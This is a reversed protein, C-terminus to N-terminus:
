SPDRGGLARLLRAIAAFLQRKLDAPEAVPAPREPDPVGLFDFFLALSDELRRDVLVLTGAIKQRAERPAERDTLGFVEQLLEILPHFALLRGHAVGRGARIAIGRDRCREAFEECLRSKGTGAEAVVGVVQAHGEHVHTLATELLAMEDARGVFRSLGRARSVDLRTRMRGAGELAFVGVPRSVGKVDFPGLSELEFFGSVLDATHESLYAKGPDALAQLRAAIGIVQGQATYDMRLDDGITGVVVEGSNIGMRVAFPLGRTRKLEQAFRRLEELLHLAAYCARHAHDEHSIPAGFLAMVGDGTYQNITGEFRHVDETLIEFFRDLISHLEEPDVQEALAMSGKVDAFLVTVQKREGELASRSTLIREALHKPTYTRPDRARSSPDLTTKQPASEPGRKASPAPTAGAVPVGCADCFRAGGRLENGCAACRAELREGCAECFRVQPRNGHGCTGCPRQETASM